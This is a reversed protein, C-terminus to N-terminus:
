RLLLLRVRIQTPLEYRKAFQRPAKPPRDVRACTLAGFWFEPGAGLISIAEEQTTISPERNRPQSARM